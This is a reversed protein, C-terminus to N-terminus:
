ARTPRATSLRGTQRSSASATPAGRSPRRKHQSPNLTQERPYKAHTREDGHTKKMVQPWVISHPVVVEVLSIVDQVMCTPVMPLCMPSVGYSLWMALAPITAWATAGVLPRLGVFSAAFDVALYILVAVVIGM